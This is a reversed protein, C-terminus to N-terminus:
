ALLIERDSASVKKSKGARATSVLGAEVLQKLDRSVRSQDRELASALAKVSEFPGSERIVHLMRIREDSLVGKLIEPDLPVVVFRRPYSEPDEAVRRALEFAHRINDEPESQTM